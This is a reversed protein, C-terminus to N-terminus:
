LNGRRRKRRGPRGPRTGAPSWRGSAPGPSRRPPDPCCRARGPPVGQRFTVRHLDALEDVGEPEQVVDPAPVLRPDAQEPLAHLREIRVAGIGIDSQCVSRRAPDLGPEHSQQPPVLLADALGPLGQRRQGLERVEGGVDHAGLELADPEHIQAPGLLQVFDAAPGDAPGLLRPILPQGGLVLGVQGPRLEEHAIDLRGGPENGLPLRDQHGSTLVPLQRHVQHSLRDDDIPLPAVTLGQRDELADHGAGPFDPKTPHGLHTQLPQSLGIQGRTLEVRGVAGVQLTKDHSLLHTQRDLDGTLEGLDGALARM